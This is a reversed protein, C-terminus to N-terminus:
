VGTDNGCQEIPNTNTIRHYDNAKDKYVRRLDILEDVTYKKPPNYSELADVREAGLKKILSLRYEIL